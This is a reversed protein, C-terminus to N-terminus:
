ASCSTRRASSSRSAKRGEAGARDPPDPEEQDGAARVARPDAGPRRPQDRRGPAQGPRARDARRRGARARRGLDRARGAGGQRDPRRARQPARRDRARHDRAGRGALPRHPARDPLQRGRAPTSAGIGVPVEIVRNEVMGNSAVVVVLARGPSLPIFEVQKFPHETKPALVLGAYHSLGALAGSADSLMAEVSRGSGGCQSDIGIRDDESLHGLELLGDVYMRFGLDTPVRGASTHPAYLLGADELDAMVNRITAPSLHQDPRRAITRSGIPEGTEVYTDVIQRFIQKSRESLETIM